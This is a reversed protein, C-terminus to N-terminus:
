TASAENSNVSEWSQDYARSVYYSATSQNAPRIALTVAIWGETGTTTFSATGTSGAIEQTHDSGAGFTGGSSVTDTILEFRATTGAPHILSLPAPEVHSNGDVGVIRLVLTENVTTTVAPAIPLADNTVGNFAWADIPASADAGSYRQVAAFGEEATAWTFSYNAPESSAIRYWVGLASEGGGSKGQQFVETWGVPQTIPLSNASNDIGIVAVLLDGDTTGTPRAVTLSTGSSPGQIATAVSEFAPAGGLNAGVDVYTTTTRPSIQAIQTYPGGPSTGRYIRHGSAYTDATATWDLEIDSGNIVASLSTPPNLTDTVLSSGNTGTIATFDGASRPLAVIAVTLAAAALASRFNAARCRTNNSGAVHGRKARLMSSSRHKRRRPHM